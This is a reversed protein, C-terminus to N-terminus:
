SLDTAKITPMLLWLYQTMILFLWQCVVSLTQLHLNFTERLSHSPTHRCRDWCVSFYKRDFQFFISSFVYMFTHITRSILLVFSISSAHSVYPSLPPEYLTETPFGSPFIGCKFGLSLHFSLIL